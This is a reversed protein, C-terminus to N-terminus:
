QRASSAPIRGPKGLSDFDTLQWHDRWRIVLGSSKFEVPLWVYRGDIANAPNWRDAAFIFAGPRGHVPLLYTGQSLFTKDADEGVSPNGIPKWPGWISDSIAAYAPNPAWGTCHSGIFYYKGKFHLITPAELSEGIFIRKWRGSTSLYDSSLESVHMTRNNESATLLYAKGDADQFLTMDRSMEGDPRFSRLFRFPGVASRSVAVGVRAARYGQGKLELHFWMVYQWTRFNYLVKPREIISGRVIDSSPDDSVHLAIGENKWKYLDHSSYCSIGVNAVNGGPGATKFEGYWYYTGARYLFGAGHANIPVGQSDLWVAGPSFASIRPTQEAKQRDPQTASDPLAALPGGVVREIAQALVPTRTYGEWRELETGEASILIIMPVSLVHFERARSGDPDVLIGFHLNWDAARNAVDRPRSVEHSAVASADMAVVRLGRGRYQRDLSTLVVAVARSQAQGRDGGLALFAFLIPHHERESIAFRGGNIAPASFGAWSVEAAHVCQGAAVISLAMLANTLFRM